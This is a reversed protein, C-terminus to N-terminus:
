ELVSVRNLLGGWLLKVFGTIEPFGLTGPKPVQAGWSGGPSTACLSAPPVRTPLSQQHLGLKQKVPPHSFGLCKQPM